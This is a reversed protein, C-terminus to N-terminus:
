ASGGGSTEVSRGPGGTWPHRQRRKARIPPILGIREVEGGAPFTLIPQGSTASSRGPRTATGRRSIDLNPRPSGAPPHRRHSRLRTLPIFSAFKGRRAARWVKGIAWLVIPLILRGPNRMPTGFPLRECAGSDRDWEHEFEDITPSAMEASQRWAASRKENM